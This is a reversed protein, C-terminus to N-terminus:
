LLRVSRFGELNEASAIGADIGDKNKPLVSELTRKKYIQSLKLLFTKVQKLYIEYLLFPNESQFSTIKM